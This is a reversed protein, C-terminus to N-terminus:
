TEGRLTAQYKRSEGEVDYKMWQDYFSRVIERHMRVGEELDAVDTSWLEKETSYKGAAYAYGWLHQSTRDRYRKEWSRITEVSIGFADCILSRAKGKTEGQGELFYSYGVAFVRLRRVTAPKRALGGHLGTYSPKLSEPVEGENLTLLDAYHSLLLETLLSTGDGKGLAMSYLVMALAKRHAEPDQEFGSTSKLLAHGLAEWCHSTEDREFETDAKTDFSTGILHLYAWGSLEFMLHSALGISQIALKPKNHLKGSPVDPKSEEYIAILDSLIRHLRGVDPPRRQYTHFDEEFESVKEDTM